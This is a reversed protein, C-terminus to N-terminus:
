RFGKQEDAYKFRGVAPAGGEEGRGGTGTQAVVSPDEHRRDM